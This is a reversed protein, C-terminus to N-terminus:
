ASGYRRDRRAYIDIAEYLTARTVDPWLVNMFVMEAYAAAHASTPVYNTLESLYSSGGVEDLQKKAQLEDSLTLLDVPKRKQYLSLMAEFVTGHRKDYFDARKLKDSVESLIEDDILVSGLLSMEADLSQPPIKSAQDKKASM